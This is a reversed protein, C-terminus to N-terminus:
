HDEFKENKSFFPFSFAFFSFLVYTKISTGRKFYYKRRFYLMAKQFIISEESINYKGKLYQRTAIVMNQSVLIYLGNNGSWENKKM